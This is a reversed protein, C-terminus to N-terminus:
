RYLEQADDGVLEAERAAHPVPDGVEIKLYYAVDDDADERNAPRGRGEDVLQLSVVADLSHARILRPRLTFRSVYHTIRLAYHTIRLAYGCLVCLVSLNASTILPNCM